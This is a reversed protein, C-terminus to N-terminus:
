QQSAVGVKGESSPRDLREVRCHPHDVVRKDRAGTRPLQAAGRRSSMIPDPLTRTIEVWLKATDRREAVFHRADALNQRARRPSRWGPRLAASIEDLEAHDWKRGFEANGLPGASIAQRERNPLTAISAPSRRM